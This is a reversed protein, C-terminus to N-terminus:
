TRLTRHELPEINAPDQTGSARHECALARYERPEMNELSWTGTPEINWEIALTIVM